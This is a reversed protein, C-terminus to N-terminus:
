CFFCGCQPFNRVLHNASVASVASDGARYLSVSSPIYRCIGFLRSFQLRVYGRNGLKHLLQLALPCLLDVVTEEIVYLDIEAVAGVTQGTVPEHEILHFLDILFAFDGHAKFGDLHIIQNFRIAVDSVATGYSIIVVDPVLLEERKPNFDLRIILRHFIEPSIEKKDTKELYKMKNLIFDINDEDTEQLENIINEFSDM